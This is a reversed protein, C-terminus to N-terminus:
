LCSIASAIDPRWFCESSMHPLGCDSSSNSNLLPLSISLVLMILSSSSLKFCHTVIHPLTKLDTSLLRNRFYLAPSFCNDLGPGLSTSLATVTVLSISTSNWSLSQSHEAIRPERGIPDFSFSCSKDHCPASCIFNSLASGLSVLSSLSLSVGSGASVARFFMKSSM